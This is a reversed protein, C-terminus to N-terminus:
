DEGRLKAKAEAALGLIAERAEEERGDLRKHRNKQTNLAIDLDALDDRAEDAEDEVRETAQEASKEIAALAAALDDASDHEARDLKRVQRRFGNVEKGVTKAFARVIRESQVHHSPRLYPWAIYGVVGLV